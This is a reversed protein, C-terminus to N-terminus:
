KIIFLEIPVSIDLLLSPMFVNVFSFFCIMTSVPHMILSYCSHYIYCNNIKKSISFKILQLYFVMGSVIILFSLAFVFLSNKLFILSLMSIKIFFMSTPPVGAINLLVLVFLIKISNSNIIDKLSSLYLINKTNFNVLIIFLNTLSLLYIATFLIVSSYIYENTLIFSQVM